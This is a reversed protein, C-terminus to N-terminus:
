HNKCYGVLTVKDHRPPLIDIILGGIRHEHHSPVAWTASNVQHGHSGRFFVGGLLLNDFFHIFCVSSSLHHSHQFLFVSVFVMARM